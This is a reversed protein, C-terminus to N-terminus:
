ALASAARVASGVADGIRGPMLADGVTFVREFRSALEKVLSNVPCVGMTLVVYDSELPKLGGTQLDETWVLGPEIKVLKHSPLFRIDYEKLRATMQEYLENYVGKGIKDQMEVITLRNGNVCLFEAVELGAAGSGILVTKKNRIKEQGGFLEAVTLVQPLDIGPVSQPRLPVAGTAVVIAYPKLELLMQADAETNFKIEVGLNELRRLLSLVVQGLHEKHPPKDAWNIQGGAVAKKEFVVPRFGREALVAAATMGAIGAGAIAIVRGNGDQRNMKGAPAEEPVSKTEREIEM